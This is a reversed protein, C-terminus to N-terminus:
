STKEKVFTLTKEAFDIAQKMDAENLEAPGPYRTNTIYQSLVYCYEDLNAFSTDIEQCDNCLVVLDRIFKPQVLHFILFAKLAKEACQQCHYCSIEVNPKHMTTIHKAVELDGEAFRIWESFVEHTPM